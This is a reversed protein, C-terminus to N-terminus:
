SFSIGRGITIGQGIDIAATGAIQVWGATNSVLTTNPAAYWNAGGAATIDKISLYNAAVSTGSKSLTAASGSISSNLTVLSGATGDLTFNSVTQTLGSGVTITSPYVTAIIDNFTNSGGISLAGAGAQVLTAAFNSGGGIFTKATAGTMSIYGPASGATTTFGTPVANNFATATVGPCVLTGGNFTINKTGAATTLATGVTLTKGNFDVTGNTLTVARTSGVTFADQLIWSGGVGNFTVPADFTKNASTITKGPSTSLFQLSGSSAPGVLTMTPSITLSGYISVSGTGQAYSWTGSFGTFNVNRAARSNSSLFALPYTGGIFNFDLVQTETGGADVLIATSGTSTINVTPTGTYSFNTPTSNNWVTGVGTLNISGTGFAIARVTSGNTSLLGTSLVNNNLNLIGQTLTFTLTSGLTIADVLTVGTATNTNVTIPQTWTRGASTINQTAKQGAFTLTGTGTTTVASSLTIDGYVTFANTTNTFTLATARASFNLTGINYQVNVTITSSVNPSTDDIIVTDQALPFNNVAPTGGSSTAWATANWNGGAALNWYKNVGAPFTITTEDNGHCNGLRTGTWPLTASGAAKIDAFDVDSLTALTGNLTTTRQTGIIDSKVFFRSIATNSSGFTLTGNVTQNAAFIIGRIGNPSTAFTLNNFTNAGSITPLGNFGTNTYNVNYFTLGGGNLGASNAVISFTSTGANFTLGTTITFDAGTASNTCSITSSGLNITRTYTGSSYFTGSSLTINNNGTDFTGRVVRFSQTNNINTTLPGVLTWGGGVGDFAIFSTTAGLITVGSTTITKGTTTACFVIIPQATWTLNTAPLTMSGYISWCTLAAGALTVAGSAPGAITIDLCSPGSYVTTSTTTQSINLNYTGLGGSGTGFSVIYTGGAIYTTATPNVSVYISNGVALAGSTVVTITLVTGTITGTGVFGNSMTVTYLTASSASDFIVSDTYTPPVGALTTRGVDSYWNTTTNNDWTGSGGGWYLTAM